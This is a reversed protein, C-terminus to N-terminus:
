PIEVLQQFVPRNQWPIPPTETLGMPVAEIQDCTRAGSTSCTAPVRWGSPDAGLRARVREGADLLTGLLIQRCRRRSGAGCYIRSLPGRVRRGLLTRLDKDVYGWWGTSFANGSPPPSQGFAIVRRIRELLPTGLVPEFIRRVLPSWWADMLAVAASDDYLNDSDLDRRHAGKRRWADLIRLLEVAQPDRVRGIVRRIWPYVHRGRLDTTAAEQMIRVLRAADVKGGRALATRLPRELLKSRHVSGLSFRNDAARWGPALKNNWSVLYGTPSGTQWPLVRSPLRGRWEFEGTGWTPLSPDTGPARRPSWGAEAFAIERRGAYFWSRPVNVLGMTRRFSAPGTIANENLRKLALAPLAEHMYPASAEAIAVPEGRVTARAQIPGHVSRELRLTITRAQAGPAAASPGPTHLVHDRVEFPRCRGRHLYHVSDPTPRSGDPQCLREVFEDTNDSYSSTLSWAFDRGRGMTVYVGAGPFAAGRADIGPGHLDIEMLLPPSFHGVQPGMVALPRGSRSREATVLLANSWPGAPAAGRRELSRLWPARAGDSTAAPSGSVVLTRPRVSGLDPLAVGRRRAGAAADGTHFRRKTTVPAEPDDLRRFDDFVRRGLRRGFRAQAELLVQSVEAEGGGGRDSGGAILTLVAMSDTLTWAAPSTGLGPYEVPLKGPDLRAEEIYRNIGDVYARADDLVQAGEAGAIAPLEDLQRQLEQETYDTLLLQQVDMALVSDDTGPGILESLRGRALHRLVDIQFLRDQATAYGAGFFTGSRTTASVHPVGHAADRTITVDPRPAVVSAVDGPAVGFRAPKFFRALDEGTLGPAANLLGSYLPLQSTFTAPPRGGLTAVELASVSEGQGLALVNWYGEQAPAASALALPLAAACGVALGIGRRGAM